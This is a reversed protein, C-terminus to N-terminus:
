SFTRFCYKRLFDNRRKPYSGKGNKRKEETKIIEETFLEKQVM